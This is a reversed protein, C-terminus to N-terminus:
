EYITNRKIWKDIKFLQKTVEQSSTGEVSTACIAEISSHAGHYIKGIKAYQYYDYINKFPVRTPFDPPLKILKGEAPSTLIFGRIKKLHLVPSKEIFSPIGLDIKLLEKVPNFNFESEIEQLIRGGGLRSGVECLKVKDGDCFVELHFIFNLPTDFKDFLTSAYKKIINYVKEKESIQVSGISTKNKYVLTNDFYRSVFMYKIQNKTIFGDVHFLPWEIYEEALYNKINEKKAVAFLMKENQIKYTNMSGMGDIPKLVFPFGISKSAEILDFINNVKEFYPVDLGNKQAIKTMVYKNRFEKASQMNQGVVNYKERLKAAFEIQEETYAFIVDIKNKFHKSMFYEIYPENWQDLSVIKVNSPLEKPYTPRHDKLIFILFSDNIDKEIIDFYEIYKNSVSSLVVVNKNM